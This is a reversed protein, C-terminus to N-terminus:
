AGIGLGAIGLMVGISRKAQQEGPQRWHFVLPKDVIM